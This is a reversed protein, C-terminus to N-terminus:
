WGQRAALGGAVLMMVLSAASFRRFRKGFAAAGLGMAGMIQLTTVSLVTLHATDTGTRGGAALVARTRRPTFPSIVNAVGVGVLLWGAVRLPRNRGAAAVVGAGFGLSLV